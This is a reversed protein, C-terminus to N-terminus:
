FNLNAHVILDTLVKKIKSTGEQFAKEANVEKLPIQIEMEIELPDKPEIKIKMTHTEFRRFSFEMDTRWWVSQHKHFYHKSLFQEQFVVNMCDEERPFFKHFLNKRLVLYILSEEPYIKQIEIFHETMEDFNSLFFFAKEMVVDFLEPSSYIEKFVISANKNKRVTVKRRNHFTMIDIESVTVNERSFTDNKQIFGNLLLKEILKENNLEDSNM